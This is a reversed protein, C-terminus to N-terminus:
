RARGAVARALSLDLATAPGVSFVHLTLVVRAVRVVVVDVDLTPLGAAEVTARFGHAENGIKPLALKRLAAVRGQSSDAFASAECRAARSQSFAALDAKAEAVTGFVSATSYVEANRDATLFLSSRQGGTETLRHVDPAFGACPPPADGIALAGPLDAGTMVSRRAVAQDRLKTGLKPDTPRPVVLVATTSAAGSLSEGRCGGPATSTAVCGGSVTGAVADFQQTKTVFERAVFTGDARTKTTVDANLDGERSITVDVGARPKNEAVLAGTLVAAHAKADYRAHLTLVQPVPVNARLEFASGPDPAFAATAPTVVSSWQYTGPTSPVTIKEFTLFSAVLSLGSPWDASPSVLPCFRLTYSTTGDAGTTTDVALPLNIEPGPVLSEFAAEWYAAHPGPACAQALPDAAYSAADEATIEGFLLDLDRASPPIAIAIADAVRAGPQGTLDLQYGVPLTVDVHAAVPVVSSSPDGLEVGVGVTSVGAFSTTVVELRSGAFADM